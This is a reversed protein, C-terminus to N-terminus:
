PKDERIKIVMRRWAAAAARVSRHSSIREGTTRDEISVAQGVICIPYRTVYPRYIATKRDKNLM